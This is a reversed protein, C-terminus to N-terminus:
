AASAVKKIGEDEGMDEDEDEGVDMEVDNTEPKSAVQKVNQRSEIAARM